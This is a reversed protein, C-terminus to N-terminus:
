QAELNMAMEKMQQVRELTDTTNKDERVEIFRPHSLSWTDSGKAKTIDNFQVTIVKGIYKDRNAHLEEMQKDTFGSTRGKITGEDNEYEIAGFYEARKNNGKTFGTIRMEADIELKLKLQEKGTYDRWLNDKTKIVTGELGQATLEQFHEYAEKPSYVIKYPVVEIQPNNVLAVIEKVKEFRENYPTTGYLKRDLKYENIHVADWITYMIQDEPVNLSNILGNGKSRQTEGILTMEGILVYDSPINELIKELVPFDQTKGSRATFQGDNFSRYTGDCKLQSYIGDEWNVTKLAKKDAIGCRMYPQKPILGKWIKNINTTGFGIKPDRNIIKTFVDADDETLSKLTNEILEIAANGTVERSALKELTEFSEELKKSGTYGFENLVNVNKMTVGYIYNIRDHTYRFVKQLLENDKYKEAVAKKHNGSNSENFENFIKKIM